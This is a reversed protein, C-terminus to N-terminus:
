LVIRTIHIFKFVIGKKQNFACAHRLARIVAKMAEINCYQWVRTCKAQTQKFFMKWNHSHVISGAENPIDKM